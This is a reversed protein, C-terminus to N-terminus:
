QMNKPRKTAFTTNKQALKKNVKKLSNKVQDYITKSEMHEHAREAYSIFNREGKETYRNYLKKRFIKSGISNQGYAAKLNERIRATMRRHYRSLSSARIYANEGNFEFGLYQMNRERGTSSNSDLGKLREGYKKFYTVETKTDNIELHYDVITKLITDKVQDADEIKVVVVIDDCYRRYMGGLRIILENIYVDFELMYINSLCASIPSGQPIGCVNGYRTSGKVKNIFPNKEIMGGGRVKERFDQPSCLRVIKRGKERKIAIGFEAEVTQKEVTTYSTIARYVNFHDEPLRPANLILAWMKKLQLHDLGDFFSTIDFALAVCEGKTKIYEFVEHAFEINSKDKELYALVCEYIGLEKTKKEYNESLLTSYWSYIFADYHAAYAIPRIKKDLKRIPKGTENLQGTKKYRPVIIDSKIFPYFAHAAVKKPDALFNKLPHVNKLFDIKPDFHAYRRKKSLAAREEKEIWKTFLAADLM